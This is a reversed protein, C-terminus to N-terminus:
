AILFNMLIVLVPYDLYCFESMSVCFHIYMSLLCGSLSLCVECVYGNRMEQLRLGCEIIVLRCM